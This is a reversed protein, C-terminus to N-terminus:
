DNLWGYGESNIRDIISSDGVLKIEGNLIVVVKNPKIKNFIKENHSVLIISKSGQSFWNNISDIILNLSDVDLGSDIEDLILLDPNILLMQLIESKKKEGGSFGQNVSRNLIDRNLNLAKLNIENTKFLENIPIPKERHSNAIAKLFDLMKVGDIEESMQQAFFIGLKSIIDPSLNTIDIDKYLITGNTKKTLHHNFITKLITSKGHGNPGVIAVIEDDNIDLNINKLIERTNISVSLDKIKLM